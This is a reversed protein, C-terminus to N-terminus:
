ATGRTRYGDEPFFDDADADDLLNAHSPAQNELLEPHDEDEPRLGAEAASSGGLGPLADAQGSSSAALLGPEALDPAALSRVMVGLQGDIDVLEGFGVRAGDHVM